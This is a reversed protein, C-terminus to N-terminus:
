ICFVIRYFDSKADIWFAYTDTAATEAPTADICRTLACIWCRLYICVLIWFSLFFRRSIRLCHCLICTQLEGLSSPSSTNICLMSQIRWKTSCLKSCRKIWASSCQHEANVSHIRIKNTKACEVANRSPVLHMTHIRVCMEFRTSPWLVIWVRARESRPERTDTIHIGLRYSKKRFEVLVHLLLCFAHTAAAVFKIRSRYSYNASHM